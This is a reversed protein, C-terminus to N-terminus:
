RNSGFFICRMGPGIQVFLWWTIACSTYLTFRSVIESVESLSTESASSQILLAVAGGMLCGFFARRLVERITSNKPNSVECWALIERAEAGPIEALDCLKALMPAPIPVRGTKWSSVNGSTSGIRRALANQGGCLGACEDILSELSRM